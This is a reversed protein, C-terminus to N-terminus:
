ARMAEISEVDEPVAINAVTAERHIKRVLGSLVTGPGVEVIDPQLPLLEFLDDFMAAPYNPRIEDYMAVAANFSLRPDESRNVGRNQRWHTARAQDQRETGANHSLPNATTM